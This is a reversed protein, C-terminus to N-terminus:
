RPIGYPTPTPHHPAPHNAASGASAPAAPKNLLSALVRDPHIADTVISDVRVGAAVAADRIQAESADAVALRGDPRIVADTLGRAALMTALAIPTAAAVVLRDPHSRRLRSPSGQYVVSGANLVILQDAGPLVASLTQSSLLVTGGRRTHRRLFDQLWGREAPELGAMPDDLVLLPPDGLLATALALRTQPGIPLADTKVGAQEGLGVMDLVQEVRLDGIGAAAAYVRLHDRVTRRPLLGRPMLMGGVLHTPGAAPESGLRRKGTGPGEVEVTGSTPALLGLVIRLITTKGAGAPGVLAATAGATVSFSVETVAPVTRFQKSLKEVTFAKSRVSSM